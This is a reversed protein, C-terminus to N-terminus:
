ICGSFQCHRLSLFAHDMQPDFGYAKSSLFVGINEMSSIAADADLSFRSSKPDAEM